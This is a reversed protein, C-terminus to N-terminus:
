SPTYFEVGFIQKGSKRKEHPAWGLHRQITKDDRLLALVGQGARTWSSCEGESLYFGGSVLHKLRDMRAFQRAVDRSVAQRNSLIACRRFVSNYCEFTEVSSRPLPGFRRADAPAHTVLHVKNKDLIRGRDLEGFADQVNGSGTSM